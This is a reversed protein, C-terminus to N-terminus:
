NLLDRIVATERLGMGLFSTIDEEVTLLFETGLDSIMSDIKTVDHGVYILDDVFCLVIMDKHIFLCPDIDSPKFGRSELLRKLAEFWAIPADCSGYLNKNLQLVNDDDTKSEFGKPLEVFTPTKVKAQVFANTYDVQRSSRDLIM